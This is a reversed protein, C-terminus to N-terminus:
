EVVGPLKAPKSKSDDTSVIWAKTKASAGAPSHEFYAFNMKTSNENPTIM